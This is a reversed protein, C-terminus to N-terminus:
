DYESGITISIDGPHIFTSHYWINTDIVFIDGKHVTVNLDKCEKECEPPPILTWTKKGSIQAQWSPRQVYDLHILAGPGSGGMFIWDLASSESDNPLFYPREYHNRLENKVENHCNSWGIYWPAEGESFNARADSMNFVDNLTSFDTKYPFFQCQEDVSDLAGEKETYLDKFFKYSFKSMASWNSTAEKILVPVTSYAYKQKFEQASIGYEVPVSDLNRCIDCKILPRAMEITLENNEILCRISEIEFTENIADKFYYAAVSSIIGIIFVLSFAGRKSLWRKKRTPKILVNRIDTLSVGKGRAAKALTRYKNVLEVKAKGTEM